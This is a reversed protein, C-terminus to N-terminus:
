SAMWLQARPNRQPICRTGTSGFSYQLLLRRCSELGLASLVRGDFVSSVFLFLRSGTMYARTKVWEKECANRSSRCFSGVVPRNQTFLARVTEALRTRKRLRLLYDARMGRRMEGAMCVGFM